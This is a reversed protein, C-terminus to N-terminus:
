QPPTIAAACVINGTEDFGTILQGEPCSQGALAVNGPLGPEGQAGQEGEPGQIGDCGMVLLDNSTDLCLPDGPGAVLPLAPLM